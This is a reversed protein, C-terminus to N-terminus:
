LFCGISHCPLKKLCLHFSTAKFENRAPLSKVCSIPTAITDIETILSTLNLEITALLSSMLEENKPMDFIVQQFKHDNM